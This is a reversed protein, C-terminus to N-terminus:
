DVAIIGVSVGVEVEDEGLCGLGHGVQAVVTARDQQMADLSLASGGGDGRQVGRHVSAYGELLRDGVNVSCEGARPGIRRELVCQV